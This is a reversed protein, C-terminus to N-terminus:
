YGMKIWCIKNEKELRKLIFTEFETDTISTINYFVVYMKLDDPLGEILGLTYDSPNNTIIVKGEDRAKEIDSIHPNHNFVITDKIDRKPVLDTMDIIKDYKM